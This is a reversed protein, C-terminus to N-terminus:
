LGRKIKRIKEIIYAFYYKCSLALDQTKVYEKRGGGFGMKFLSLGAWPHKSIAASTNDLVDPAIGWFNYLRCGRNKAEKIAEWQLLYSVPSKNNNYKSLSAGHHYFAIGQWFVIIASAVIKGQYKGLFILIENDPNFSNFQNQLYEINFPSFNHRKVTEEYIINFNELDSLNQSKIIKIDSNKEAQRILYRTTKRMRKLITELDFSIDLEWTVEPHMHIPANKFGADRFINSNIISRAMIPSIRIFDAKENKALEKLKEVLMNIIQGAQDIQDKIVPGHPVFLFVGRKAVIKVVLACGIMENERYIGFRWIKNNEKIQFEGWNWSVLFSKEQCSKLFEEWNDKNVAEKIDM